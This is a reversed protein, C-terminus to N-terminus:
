TSSLEETHKIKLNIEDIVRQYFYVENRKWMLKNSDHIFNQIIKQICELTNTGSLYKQIEEDIDYYLKEFHSSDIQLKLIEAFDKILNNTYKKQTISKNIFKERMIHKKKEYFSISTILTDKISTIVDFSLRTQLNFFQEYQTHKNEVMLNNFKELDKKISPRNIRHHNIEDLFHTNHYNKTTIIRLSDWMFKTKCLTCFMQNCGEIKYIKKFCCPCEKTNTLIYEMNKITNIDCEHTDLNIDLIKASCKNCAKTNCSICSLFKGDEQAKYLGNCKEEICLQVKKNKKIEEIEESLKKMGSRLDIKIVDINEFTEKQLTIIKEMITKCSKIQKEKLQTLYLNKSKEICIREEEFLIEKYLRNTRVKGFINIVDYYNYEFTCTSQLCNVNITKKSEFYKFVCEKCSVFKCSPCSCSKRKSKTFKLTCIPCSM